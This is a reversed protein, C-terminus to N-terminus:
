SATSFKKVSWKNLGYMVFIGTQYKCKRSVTTETIAVRTYTNDLIFVQVWQNIKLFVNRRITLYEGIIRQTIFYDELAINPTSM